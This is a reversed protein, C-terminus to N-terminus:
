RNTITGEAKCEKSFVGSPNLVLEWDHTNSFKSSSDFQISDGKKVIASEDTYWVGLYKQKLLFKVDDKSISDNKGNVHTAYANIVGSYAISDIVTLKATKSVTAAFVSTACVSFLVLSVLLTSIFRKM